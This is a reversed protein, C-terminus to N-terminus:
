GKRSSGIIRNEQRVGEHAEDPLLQPRILRRGKQKAASRKEATPPVEADQENEEESDEVIKRKGKKPAATRKPSPKKTVAKKATPQIILLPDYASDESNGTERGEQVTEREEQVPEKGRKSGQRRVVYGERVGVRTGDPNLQRVQGDPAPLMQCFMAVLGREKSREPFLPVMRRLAELKQVDEETPELSSVGLM